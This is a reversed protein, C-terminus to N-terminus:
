AKNTKVGHLVIKLAKNEASKPLYIWPVIDTLPSILKPCDLEYYGEREDSYKSTRFVEMSNRPVLVKDGVKLEFEGNAILNGIVGYEANDVTVDGGIAKTSELVQIGTVLFYTNAELQRKNLNTVGVKKDDSAQFAEITTSKELNRSCYLAYDVVQVSGNKIAATLNPDIKSLRAAFETIGSAIKTGVFSTRQAAEAM